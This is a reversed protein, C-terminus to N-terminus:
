EVKRWGPKKDVHSRKGILDNRRRVHGREGRSSRMRETAERQKREPKEDHEAAGGAPISVGAIVTGVLVAVVSMAAKRGWTSITASEGKM